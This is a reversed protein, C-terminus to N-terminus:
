CSTAREPPQRLDRRGWYYPMTPSKKAFDEVDGKYIQSMRECYDRYSEDPLRSTATVIGATLKDYPQNDLIRQYIWQYWEAGARGRVPTINNLQTENNGTFDCFKTAWWAAYEPTELLEDIKRSRKQGSKDALFAQVEGPTPM